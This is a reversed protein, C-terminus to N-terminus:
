EQEVIVNPPEYSLIGTRNVLLPQRLAGDQRWSVTAMNLAASRKFLSALVGADGKDELQMEVQQRLRLDADDHWRLIIAPSVWLAEQEQNPQLLFAFTEQGDLTLLVRDRYVGLGQRQLKELIVLPSDNVGPVSRREKMMQVSTYLRYLLDRTGTFAVYSVAGLVIAALWVLVIDVLGYGALYDRRVGLMRETALPYVFATVISLTIAVLWTEPSTSKLPFEQGGRQLRWLLGVTLVMLFGPLFLFSPVALVTLLESEGLVGVKVSHTALVNGEYLSGAFEWAFDIDFLLLHMGPRVVDTTRLDFALAVEQRPLLRLPTAWGDRTITVFEPGNSKIDQVELPRDSLNQLRVYIKGPQQENLIELDAQVVANVLADTSPLDWAAVTVSDYAVDHIPQLASPDTWTYHLSFFVPGPDITESASLLVRYVLVSQPELQSRSVPTITAQIDTNTFWTVQLDSLPTRGMNRVVIQIEVEGGPLIEVQDPIVELFAPPTNALVAHTSGGSGLFLIVFIFLVAPYLWPFRRVGRLTQKM